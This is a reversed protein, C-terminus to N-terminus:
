NEGKRKILKLLVGSAFLVAIYVAGCVLLPIIFTIKGHVFNPISIEFALYVAFALVASLLIKGLDKILDSKIYKGVVKKLVFATMLAYMLLFFSSSLAILLNRTPFGFICMDEPVTKVFLVNSCINLVVVAVTGIVCHKYKGALYLIKNFLEQSIYGLIGLSYIFLITAVAFTDAETFSGREYVLRIIDKGFLAIVLLYPIFIASMVTIIYRLLDNIYDINGEEYNKSIAPFFVTSMAVVFISAIIVFLNSAYSFTSAMGAKGSVFSRDAYFCLQYMMNSIFIWLIEPNRSSKVCGNKSRDLLRYGKKYFSPLLIAIHLFWGLTTVVGVTTISVGPIFLSAIIVVNFPLSMISTIFFVRENQLVGSIIYAIVVFILSPAMIYMLRVATNLEEGSLGPLLIKSVIPKAFIVFLAAVACFALFSKKIFSSVYSKENGINEAKNMNKIVLTSLAVGIGAFILNVINFIQFYMDADISTGFTASFAVDRYFGIGKAFIIGLVVFIYANGMRFDGEKSYDYIDM